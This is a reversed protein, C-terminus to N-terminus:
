RRNSVTLCRDWMTGAANRVQIHFTLFEIEKPVKITGHEYATEGPDIIHVGGKETSALSHLRVDKDTQGFNVTIRIKYDWITISGRNELEVDIWHLNGDENEILDSAADICLKPSFLRGHFFRFYSVLGALLVLMTTLITSVTGIIDKNENIGELSLFGQKALNAIFLAVILIIIWSVVHNRMLWLRM